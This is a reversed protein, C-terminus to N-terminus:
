MPKWIGNCKDCTKLYKEPLLKESPIPIKEDMFGPDSFKARYYCLFSM